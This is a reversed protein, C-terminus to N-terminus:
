GVPWAPITTSFASLKRNPHQPQFSLTEQGVPPADLALISYLTQRALEAVATISSPTLHPLLPLPLVLHSVHSTALPPRWLKELEAEQAWRALLFIGVAAAARSQMYISPDQGIM